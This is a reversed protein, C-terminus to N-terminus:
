LYDIDDKEGNMRKEMFTKALDRGGIGFALALALVVGGFTIAFTVLVTDKGIGLQELAVSLAFFFVAYKVFRGIIGATKIGANVCAILITRGIFNGFLYGFLLILLATFIYPLYLVLREILQEVPKLKMARLSILSFLIFLVWGFIKGILKSITDKIGGKRLLDPISLKQSILDLKTFRLIGSLIKAMLISLLIGLIFIILASTLTPLYALFERFFIRIPELLLENLWDM